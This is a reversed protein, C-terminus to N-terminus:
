KGEEVTHTLLAARARMSAKGLERAAKAVIEVLEKNDDPNSMREGYLSQPQRHESRRSRLTISWAASSGAAAM